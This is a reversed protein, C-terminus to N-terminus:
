PTVKCNMLFGGHAEPSIDPKAADVLTRSGAETTRAILIAAIAHLIAQLRTMADRFLDSKCAGPTIYDIVVNSQATIPNRAALERV